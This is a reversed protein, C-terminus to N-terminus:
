KRKGSVARSTGKGATRGSVNQRETKRKRSMERGRRNGSAGKETKKRAADAQVNGRTKLQGKSKEGPKRPPILCKSPDFGILDRRGERLLAEKVLDYNEPKKHNLNQM